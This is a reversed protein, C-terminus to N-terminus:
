NPLRGTMVFSDKTPTYVNVENCVKRNTLGMCCRAEVTLLSFFDLQFLM